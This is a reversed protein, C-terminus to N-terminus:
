SCVSCLNSLLLYGFLGTCIKIKWQVTPVFSETYSCDDVDMNFFTHTCTLPKSPIFM